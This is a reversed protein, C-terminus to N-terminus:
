DGLGSLTINAPIQPSACSTITNTVSLAIAGPYPTGEPGGDPQAQEGGDPLIQLGGDPLTLAGGDPLSAPPSFVVTYAASAGAPITIPGSPTVTYVSESANGNLLATLTVTAPSTGGNTVTLPQSVTQGTSGSATGFTM